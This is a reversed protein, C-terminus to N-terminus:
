DKEINQQLNQSNIVIIGEKKNCNKFSLSGSLTGFEEM